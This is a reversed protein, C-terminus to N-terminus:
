RQQDPGAVFVPEPQRSGAHLYTSLRVGSTREAGPDSAPPWRLAQYLLPRYLDFCSELLDAFAAAAALTRAYAAVAVLLGAPLAWWAWITWVTFLLGCILVQVALLLSTYAATVEQRATDPLLLWLRPWCVLPDLGYRNRTRAEGAQLVNGLRTPMRAARQAPIRRLRRELRAREAIQAPNLEDRPSAALQRLQARDRDSRDSLRARLRAAARNLRAPWYGALVRLAPQAIRRLALGSLTIVVLLALLYSGQILLPMGQLQRGLALLRDPWGGNQPRQAWALLGAAWFGFAPSFLAAVWRDALRGGLGTWFDGLM